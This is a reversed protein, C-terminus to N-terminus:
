GAPPDTAILFNLRAAGIPKGEDEQWAVAEVNAIRGGLRSVHGRAYTEVLRGGRLYDVTITIPKLRAGAPAVLGVARYAALELLGAIAGGHLFGPRGILHPGSPLVLTPSGPETVIGLTAAYPPLTDIM